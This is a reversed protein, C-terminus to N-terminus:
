LCQVVRHRLGCGEANGRKSLVPTHRRVSRSSRRIHRLMYLATIVVQRQIYIKATEKGECGLIHLLSKPTLPSLFALFDLSTLELSLNGGFTQLVKDASTQLRLDYIKLGPSFLNCFLLSHKSQKIDTETQINANDVKRRVFNKNFFKKVVVVHLRM